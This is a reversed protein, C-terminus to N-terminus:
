GMYVIWSKIKYQRTACENRAMGHTFYTEVEIQIWSM